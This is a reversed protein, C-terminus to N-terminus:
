ISTLILKKNIFESIGEKSLERGYGSRKTGGFPLDPSSSVQKNIYVMGSEISRAIEQALSVNESYISAGLGYATDNAIEIAEEITKVKILCIVPGFVEEDYAKMGPKLDTLITPEMFFGATDIQHGGTILTAGKSVSDEVQGLLNQLASASSIPGMDTDENLPNGVKLQKIHATIKELYTDYIGEQVLIRKSSTCAQGANRLRGNITGGMVKELDADDLVIMPDTGGLELVTKKINAGAVKAISAGAADSGTLSVGKILSNEVLASTEGGSIFLNQYIGKPANVKTFLDEFAQACQPINSATKLLITNGAMLNPAAFRVIQSFPFNWPMIGLLVGIPDSVIFAEGKESTYATPKLFDEAYDAYYDFIRATYDIEIRSEKIPKGMEITILRALEEKQLRLENAVSKIVQKRDEFSTLRWKKFAHHALEIKLNLETPTHSQFEKETIGTTPNLTRISSTM